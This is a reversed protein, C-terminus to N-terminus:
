TPISDMSEKADTVLAWGEPTQLEDCDNLGLIRSPIGCVLNLSEPNEHIGGDIRSISLSVNGIHPSNECFRILFDLLYVNLGQKSTSRSHNDPVREYTLIIILTM